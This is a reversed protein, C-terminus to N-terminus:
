KEEKQIRERHCEIRVPYNVNERYEKLLRKADKYDEAPCELEWGNELLSYIGYIDVTKRKYM